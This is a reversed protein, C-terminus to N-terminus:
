AAKLIQRSREQWIGSFLDARLRAMQAAGDEAWRIGPLKLRAGTVHYNASEVAGSGVRLGMARYRPYDMRDQNHRLYTQVSEIQARAQHQSRKLFELSEIVDSAQGQEIRQTQEAAWEKAATTGEGYLVAAMEWLKHKVHYLDLILLVTVPLSASLRRIWEAGDSLVVLLQARQFGRKLMVAWVLHALSPWEGLHSVYSKELICTRRESEHACAAGEYLVANKVERGGVAYKRGPGGRGATAAATATEERTLVYVGDVELYAVPIDKDPAQATIYPPSKGWKEEFAQIEQAEEAQMKIVAAARCEVSHKVGQASVQLGLLKEVLSVALEYPVTTAMLTTVEELGATYASEPLGVEQQAPAGGQECRACWSYRRHLRLEGVTSQWSRARRGQSCAMQGCGGCRLAPRQQDAEDLREQLRAELVPRVAALAAQVSLREEEIASAAEAQELRAYNVLAQFGTLLGGATATSIQLRESLAGALEAGSPPKGDRTLEHWMEAVEAVWTGERPCLSPNNKHM